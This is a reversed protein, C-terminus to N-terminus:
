HPDAMLDIEPKGLFSKKCCHNEKMRALHGAWKFRQLKVCKVIDPQKYLELNSRRKSGVLFAAYSRERLFEWLKRM